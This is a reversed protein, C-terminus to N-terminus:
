RFGRLYFPTLGFVCVLAMLILSLRDRNFPGLRLSGSFRLTFIYQWILPAACEGEVVAPVLIAGVRLGAKCLFGWITTFTDM